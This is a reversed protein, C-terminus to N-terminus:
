NSNVENAHPKRMIIDNTYPLPEQQCPLWPNVKNTKIRKAQIWTRRKCALSTLREYNGRIEKTYKEM